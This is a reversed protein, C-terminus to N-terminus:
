APKEQCGAACCRNVAPRIQDEIELMGAWTKAFAM